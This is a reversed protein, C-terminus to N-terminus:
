RKGATIRRPAKGAEQEFVVSKQDTGPLDLWFSIMPTEKLIGGVVVELTGSNLTAYDTSSQYARLIHHSHIRALPIIKNAVLANQWFTESISTNVPTNIQPLVYVVCPTGMFMGTCLIPLGYLAPHSSDTESLVLVQAETGFAQYVQCFYAQINPLIDMGERTVFQHTPKHYIRDSSEDYAWYPNDKTKKPMARFLAAMEEATKM